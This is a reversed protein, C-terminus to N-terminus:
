KGRLATDIATSVKGIDAYSSNSMVVVGDRAAPYLVMRTKVEPQSGNHFVKLDRQEQEVVFGLGYRTPTGDSTSQATWMMRETEADVLKHNLLAQAWLAFDGIDSCYGGAGHKWYQPEDIAPCVQDGALVYGKVLNANKGTDPEFSTMALPTTIRSELQQSFPQQGAREIVASLLIYAYSSYSSESGPPFVLPSRNFKDLALVPNTYPDSEQYKRITPIIKGNAYHPIGSQHCLLQRTTIITGKDPFEPVYNRVDQDLDLLKAEVLQMALVAAVPKSNSAWNFRSELTVPTKGERDADGYSQLYVIQGQQLVGIAVGVLNQDSMVEAMATDIAQARAVDLPQQVLDRALAGTATLILGIAVITRKLTGM